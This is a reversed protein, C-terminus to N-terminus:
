LKNMNMLYIFIKLFVMQMFIYFTPWTVTFTLLKMAENFYSHVLLMDEVDWVLLIHSSEASFM